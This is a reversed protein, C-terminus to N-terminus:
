RFFTCVYNKTSDDSDFPDAKENGCDNKSDSYLVERLVPDRSETPSQRANVVSRNDENYTNNNINNEASICPENGDLSTKTYNTAAAQALYM